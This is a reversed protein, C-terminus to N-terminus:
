ESYYIRKVRGGITALIEYPITNISKAVEQLLLNKGFIEVEDGEKVKLGTVDIM